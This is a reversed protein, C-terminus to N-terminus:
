QIQQNEAVGNLDPLTKKYAILGIAMGVAAAGFAYHWGQNEMLYGCVIYGIISGINIGMYYIAYGSDRRKDEDSYMMGVMAGINPKLLGTGLIVLIM